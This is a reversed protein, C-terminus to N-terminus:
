VRVDIASPKNVSIEAIADLTSESTDKMQFKLRIKKDSIETLKEELQNKNMELLDLTAEDTLRFQIGLDSKKYELLVQVTELYHTDLSIFITTEDDNKQNKRKHKVFFDVSRLEDNVQLPLQFYSMNENIDRMYNISQQINVLQNKVPVLNSGGTDEGRAELSTILKSLSEDLKDDDSLGLGQLTSLLAKLETPLKEPDANIIQILESLQKGIPEKGFILKDLMALNQISNNMNSSKHFALKQYDVKSLLDLLKVATKSAAESQEGKVSENKVADSSKEEVMSSTNKPIQIQQKTKVSEDVQEQAATVVEPLNKLLTTLKEENGPTEVHKQAYHAVLIQKLPSKPPIDSLKIVDAEILGKFTDVQKSTDLLEKISERSVPIGFSVLAKAVAIKEPTVVEGSGKFLTELSKELTEPAEGTFPRVVLQEENEVVEFSYQAGQTFTQGEPLKARLLEGSQLQLLLSDNMVQSVIAKFVQGKVLGKGSQGELKKVDGIMQKMIQQNTIRMLIM